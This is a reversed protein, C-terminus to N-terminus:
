DWLMWLVLLDIAVGLALTILVFRKMRKMETGPLTPGDAGDQCRFELSFYFGTATDGTV